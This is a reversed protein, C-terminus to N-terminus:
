ERAAAGAAVHAVSHASVAGTSPDILFIRDPGFADDATGPPALPPLMLVLKGSSHQLQAAGADDAASIPIPPSLAVRGLNAGTGNFRQLEGIETERGGVVLSYLMGEAPAWALGSLPLDRITTPLKEWASTAPDYRFFQTFVHSTMVIVKRADADWALGKPWSFDFSPDVAITIFEGTQPSLAGFTHQTLAFTRGNETDHAVHRVGGRVDRASRAIPGALTFEALATTASHRSTRSVLLAYFPAVADAPAFAPAFAAARRRAESQELEQRAASRKAHTAIASVCSSFSVVVLGIMVLTSVVTFRRLNASKTFFLGYVFSGAGWTFLIAVSVLVKTERDRDSDICDVLSWIPQFLCFLSALALVTVLGFISLGTLFEPM